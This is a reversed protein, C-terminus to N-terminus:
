AATQLAPLNRLLILARESFYSSVARQDTLLKDGTESHFPRGDPCTCTPISLSGMGAGYLLGVALPGRARAENPHSAGRGVHVEANHPALHGGHARRNGVGAMVAQALARSPM